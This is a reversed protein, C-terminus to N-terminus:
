SQTSLLTDENTKSEGATLHSHAYYLRGIETKLRATLEDVHKTTYGSTDIPEGVIL